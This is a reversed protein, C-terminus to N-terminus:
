QPRLSPWNALVRIPTPDPEAVDVLFRQGDAAVDYDRLVGEVRFLASGLGPQPRAGVAIPVAIVAGDPALYFLERGDRRWRPMTGGDSSVRIREGSAEVPRLYVERGGSENSYYAIWRGDPSFRAGKEDFPTRTLSLAKAEGGSLPLMWLDGNTRRMYETFVLFRGDPSVDEPSQVGPRAVVPAASEPSGVSVRYVDPPGVWDGRFFISQGDASWVTMREDRPDLTARSPLRRQFDYTWIDSSGKKEDIISLALTRGDRAIRIHLIAGTFPLAELERGTRDVWTLRSPRTSPEYAIVGTGSASFAAMLPGNFQYVHEALAVAEGRTQLTGTDFPQALLVGERVFLLHGSALEVRSSVDGVTTTETSDLSGVRLLLHMRDRNEAITVFLYRRGDRLFFPWVLAKEGHAFDVARVRRPEGGNADVAWLGGNQMGIQIFVIQGSSGWTPLAEIGAECIAQPPGGSVAIKQIKGDAFFGVYRSDPSWFPSIGGETGPLPLAELSDLPRLYLREKESSSGAFVIWRGDPSISFHSEIESESLTVGKPFAIAFRMPAAAASTPGSRSSWRWMIGAALLAAVLWPIARWARFARAPAPGTAVSPFSAGSSAESLRDRVMAIDRALDRTSAYRDEPDKALCREVIWRLPAPTLPALSTLSEPETRIIATMTEPASDRSFARRGAAMEYLISGLSFQDSRFDVPRALAQEPSMYAITGMVVGPETAGSVTPAKTTHGPGEVEVLKALGFDLIKAFGDRTVMINEPKLDRHVIGASHARALGDAVQAGIGLLARPALPGDALLERLTRGEVLEMSIYEVGNSNGIDHITVLSPHNLASAARAEKEFRKIREPDSALERPLIKIAVDRGLRSDRARYVEGMGGAGLAALIEYPGLRTGASLPM